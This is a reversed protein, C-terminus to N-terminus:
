KRTEILSMANEYASDTDYEVENVIWFTDAHPRFRKENEGSYFMFGFIANDDVIFASFYVKIGADNYHKHVYENVEKMIATRTANTKPEDKYQNFIEGVHQKIKTYSM